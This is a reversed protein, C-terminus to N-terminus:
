ELSSLTGLIEQCLNLDGEASIELYRDGITTLSFLVEHNDVTRIVLDVVERGDQLSRTSEQLITFGSAEWAIKRQAVRAALDNQPDWDYRVIVVRSGNEAISEVSSGHSLLVTQSGRDGIQQEPGITWDEPYRLSFRGETDEFFVPAYSLTISPAPESTATVALEIVKTAAVTIQTETIPTCSSLALGLLFLFFLRKM